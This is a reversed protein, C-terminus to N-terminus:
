DNDDEGNLFYGGSVLAAKPAIASAVYGAKGLPSSKKWKRALQVGLENKKKLIERRKAYKFAGKFQKSPDKIIKNLHYVDTKIMPDGTKIKKATPKTIAWKGFKSAKHKLFIAATKLNGIM